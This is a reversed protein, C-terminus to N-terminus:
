ETEYTGRLEIMYAGKMQILLQVGENEGREKKM